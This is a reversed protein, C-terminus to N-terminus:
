QFVKDGPVGPEQASPMQMQAFGSMTIPGMSTPGMGGGPAGFPFGLVGGGGCVAQGGQFTPLINTDRHYAAPAGITNSSAVGASGGAGAPAGLMLSGATGLTSSATALMAGGDGGPYGGGNIMPHQCSKGQQPQQPQQPILSQQQQQQQQQQSRQAQPFAQPQQAFGAQQPQPHTSQLAPPPGTNMHAPHCASSSGPNYSAAPGQHRNGALTSNHQPQSFQQQGSSPQVSGTYTGVGCNQYGMRDEPQGAGSAAAGWNSTSLGILQGVVDSDANGRFSNPAGSASSFGAQSQGFGKTSEWRPTGTTGGHACFTGKAGKHNGGTSSAGVNGQPHASMNMGTNGGKSSGYAPLPPPLPAGGPTPGFGTGPACAGGGANGFGSPGARGGGMGYGPQGHAGPTGHGGKNFASGHDGPGRASFNQQPPQHHRQGTGKTGGQESYGTANTHSITAAGDFITKGCQNQNYPAAHFSGHASGASHQQLQQSHHPAGNYTTYGGGRPGGPAMMAANQDSQHPHIQQQLTAAMLDPPGVGGAGGGVGGGVGAHHYVSQAAAAALAVGNASLPHPVHQPHRAPYFGPHPHPAVPVPPPPPLNLNLKLNRQGNGCSTKWILGGGTSGYKSNSSPTGTTGVQRPEASRADGNEDGLKAEQQATSCASGGADDAIGGGESPEAKTEAGGSPGAIEGCSKRSACNKAEGAAAAKKCPSNMVDVRMRMVDRLYTELGADLKQTALVQENEFLEKIFNMNNAMLTVEPDQRCYDSAVLEKWGDFLTVAQVPKKRITDSSTAGGTAADETPVARRCEAAADAMTVDHDGASTPSADIGNDVNGGDSNKEASFEAAASAKPRRYCWVRNKLAITIVMAAQILSLPASTPAGALVHEQTQDIQHLLLLFFRKDIEVAPLSKRYFAQKQLFSQTQERNKFLSSYFLKRKAGLLFAKSYPKPPAAAEPQKTSNNMSSTRDEEAKQKEEKVATGSAARSGVQQPALPPEPPSTKPPIPRQEAELRQEDEFQRAMKMQAAKQQAAAVAAATSNSGPGRAAAARQHAESIAAALPFTPASPLLGAMQLQAANLMDQGPGMNSAPQAPPVVAPAPTGAVACPPAAACLPSPIANRLSQYLKQIQQTAITLMQGMNSQGVRNFQRMDETHQQDFNVLTVLPCQERTGFRSVGDSFSFRAFVTHLLSAFEMACNPPIRNRDLHLCCPAFTSSPTTANFSAGGLGVPYLHPLYGFVLLLSFAGLPTVQNGTLIIQEFPEATTRVQLLIIKALYVLAVDCIRNQRLNIRKVSIKNLVLLDCLQQLNEPGMGKNALDLEDIVGGYSSTLPGFNLMPSLQPPPGPHQSSPQRTSFSPQAHASPPFQNNSGGCAQNLTSHGNYGLGPHQM